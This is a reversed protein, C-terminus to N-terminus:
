EIWLKGSRTVWEKMGGSVSLSGSCTSWSVQVLKNIFRVNAGHLVHRVSSVPTRRITRDGNKEASGRRRVFSFLFSSAFTSLYDQVVRVYPTIYHLRATINNVFRQHHHRMFFTWWSYSTLTKKEDFRHISVMALLITQCPNVLWLWKIESHQQVTAACIVRLRVRWRVRRCVSFSSKKGKGCWSSRRLHRCYYQQLWTYQPMLYVSKQPIRGPQPVPSIM